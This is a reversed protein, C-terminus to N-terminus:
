APPDHEIGLKTAIRLITKWNRTTIEKSYARELVSMAEPTSSKSLDLVSFIEKHNKQLIRFSGDESKWPITIDVEKVERLFTIYLRIQKTVEIGEFPDDRIWAEVLNANRVITPVRFGFTKELQDAIKQELLEETDTDADLIINGSNLITVISQFGLKKLVEKLEAMPVKHHGGVNIGRLFVSYTIM